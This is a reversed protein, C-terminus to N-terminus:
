LSLRRALDSTFVGRPDMRDRVAQWQGLRPYTRALVEPSQRSDKALYLRGGAAAVLEDLRDLAAGLGPVTAPVDAALTWGPMPFSLPAPNAPGFRKLVTLFSPAGIKRLSQLAISVIDSASDPVVFQYQLFGAPGYGRNWEQVGDLPHFFAGISQLEDSRQRPAKRFWAENFAQVTLRNLLGSPVIAPVTALPKPAFALATARQDAPLMEVPAHDGRTIVGRGSAAITDIWAVSYRYQDDRAVMRAMVDDLDDARETDVRMRSSTIPIADFTAELIVGTLGMGGVTAWFEEASAGEPRLEREQGLGDVLRLTVVHSGFSGDVHHNKGHIDAAVAGGVTVMRTGPTVPVFFGRPVIARMVADLSAGAGVTVRGTNADLAITSLDRLDLVCGGANQAADGYSRGLGRALMGRSGAERVAEAAQAATEITRVQALSPSTRGWGALLRESDDRRLPSRGADAQASPVTGPKRGLFPLTPM